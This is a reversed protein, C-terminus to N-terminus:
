ALLHDASPQRGQTRRSLRVVRCELRARPWAALALETPFELQHTARAAFTRRHARRSCVPRAGCRPRPDFPSGMEVTAPNSAAANLRLASGILAISVLDDGTHRTCQAYSRHTGQGRHGAIHTGALRTLAFHVGGDFFLGHSNQPTRECLHSHKGHRHRIRSSANPKVAIATLGRQRPCPYSRGGHPLSPEPLPMRRWQSVSGSTV